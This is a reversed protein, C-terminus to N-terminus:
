RPNVDMVIVPPNYLNVSATPGRRDVDGALASM